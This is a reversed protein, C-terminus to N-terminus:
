KKIICETVAPTLSGSEILLSRYGLGAFMSLTVVLILIGTQYMGKKAGMIYNKLNMKLTKMLNM